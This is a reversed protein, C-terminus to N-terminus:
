AARRSPRRASASAARSWRRTPTSPFTNKNVTIGAEDLAEEAVKGTLGKASVDVLM